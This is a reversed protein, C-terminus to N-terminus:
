SRGKGRGASNRPLCGRAERRRARSLDSAPVALARSKEHGATGGFCEVWVLGTETDTVLEHFRYRAGPHGKVAFEDGPDLVTRPGLELRDTRVLREQADVTATM